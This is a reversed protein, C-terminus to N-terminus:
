ARPALTATSSVPAAVDSRGAVLGPAAETDGIGFEMLLPRDYSVVRGGTLARMRSMPAGAIGKVMSAAATHPARASAPPLARRM